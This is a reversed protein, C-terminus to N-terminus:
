KKKYYITYITDIHINDEIIITSKINYYEVNKIEKEKFNLYNIGSGIFLIGILETIIFIVFLLISGPNDVKLSYYFAIIGLIVLIIGIVIM